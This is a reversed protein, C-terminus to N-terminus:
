YEMMGLVFPEHDVVGKPNVKFMIQKISKVGAEAFGNSEHNYPSSPEHLIGWKECIRACDSSKFQPGGDTTIRRPFGFQACWLLLCKGMIESTARPSM